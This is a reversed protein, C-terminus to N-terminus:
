KLSAVGVVDVTVDAGGMTGNSTMQLWRCANLIEAQAQTLAVYHGAAVTVTLVSGSGDYVPLMDGITESKGAHFTLATGVFGAPVMFGRVSFDETNIADSESQGHAFVAPIFRFKGSPDFQVVGGSM